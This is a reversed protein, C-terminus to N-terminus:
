EATRAPEAPDTQMDSPEDSSPGSKTARYTGAKAARRMAAQSLADADCYVNEMSRLKCGMQKRVAPNVLIGANIRREVSPHTTSPADSCIWRMANSYGVRYDEPSPSLKMERFLAEMTAPMTEVALWDAFAECAQGSWARGGSGDTAVMLMAPAVNYSKPQALCKVLGLSPFQSEVTFREHGPATMYHFPADAPGNDINCPDISHALEHSLTFVLSFLSKTYLSVSPEVCLQHGLLQPGDPMYFANPVLSAAETFKSATPKCDGSFVIGSVGRLMMQKIEAPVPMASIRARISDKLAPFVVNKLNEMLEADQGPVAVEAVARGIADQVDRRGLIFNADALSGLRIRADRVGARVASLLAWEIIGSLMEQRCVQVDEPVKSKCPPGNAM